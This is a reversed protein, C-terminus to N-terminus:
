ATVKGDVFYMNVKGLNKAEIKGRPICYFVDKVLQYTAESVNVKGPVSNSEMRSALNVTSGWIDFAFKDKGVVGATVPGTHIGCRMQWKEGIIVKFKEDLFEQMELAAKVSNIPHFDNGSIGGAAMYADGITKIKELGHKKVIEDFARFIDDLEGVLESADLTEAIKSFGAFDTFLVSVSAHYKLISKGTEKLEVATAYPLINLLLLDSKKKEEEIIMLSNSLELTREKVKEELLINQQLIFHAKEEAAILADAQAIEREKKYLNIRDALAFSLLTVEIASGLQMYNFYYVVPLFNITELIAGIFGFILFGWALLYYKAPLYGNKLIVIGAVLFFVAMFFVTAQALILAAIKYPTFMAVFIVLGLFIFLTSVQHLIPARQKTNLFARTFFTATLITMATSIVAYKNLAPNEPWVFEFVYQYVTSMFWTICVVYAVYLLYIYERTSFYLFLNYLIILLMFGFYIGQILDLHHNDEMFAQLTGVRLPFFFPQNTSVKLFYTQTEGQEIKLPLLFNSVKIERSSFPLDDGTLQVDEVKGDSVQYLAVSDIFASGIQLYFDNEDVKKFDLRLWYADSTSGFNPTDQFYPAFKKQTDPNLIEEIGLFASDRLYHVQNGVPILQDSSKM